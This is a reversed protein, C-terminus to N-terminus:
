QAGNEPSRPAIDGSDELEKIDDDKIQQMDHTNPTDGTQQTGQKRIALSLPLDMWEEWGEEGQEPYQDITLQLTENIVSISTRPTVGGMVNLATLTKVIQEPNTVSPGKSELKVTKLNLGMSHNILNKNLFEDHKNREPLFIQIEALYSTVNATAFTISESVGLFVAPLRFATRVKERNSQDYEKFLGDSQRVDTLKHLDLKVDGKGDLDAVEPVAEILIIKNQRDKGIGESSLQATLETFSQKTLRGGSVALLAPPVTNDEFYRLNVEELERSGLLNPLQGIWRPIGYADESFQKNHLIETALNKDEVKYDVTEYRGTRFDMRRPDGFQKFYVRSGSRLQVYKRFRRYENVTSRRGGRMIKYSVRIPSEDTSMIRTSASKATRLLSVRGRKDRIVEIFSFGYTEYQIVQKSNITALSEESNASDIFSKLTDYEAKDIDVTPDAAVVRYGNSCINTVYAHICQLLISSKEAVTQINKLDYPTRLIQNAGDLQYSLTDEQQRSVDSRRSKVTVSRVRTGSSDQAKISAM